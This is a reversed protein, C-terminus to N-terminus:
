RPWRAPGRWQQCPWASRKRRRFPPAGVGTLIKDRQLTEVGFVIRLGIGASNHDRMGVIEVIEPLSESIEGPAARGIEGNVAVIDFDSQIAVGRKDSTTPGIDHVLRCSICPPM